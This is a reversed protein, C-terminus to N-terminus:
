LKKTIGSEPTKPETGGGRSRLRLSYLNGGGRFGPSNCRPLKAWGLGTRYIVLLIVLLMKGLFFFLKRDNELLKRSLDPTPGFQFKQTIKRPKRPRPSKTSESPYSPWRLGPAASVSDELWQM